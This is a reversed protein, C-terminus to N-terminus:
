LAGHLTRDFLCVRHQCCATNIPRRQSCLPPRQRRRPASLAKPRKSGDVLARVLGVKLSEKAVRGVLNLRSDGLHAMPKAM